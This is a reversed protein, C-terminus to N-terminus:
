ARGLGLPNIMYLVFERHTFAKLEIVIEAEVIKVDPVDFFVSEMLPHEFSVTITRDDGPSVEASTTSGRVGQLHGIHGLGTVAIEAATGAREGNDVYCSIDFSGDRTNPPSAQIRVLRVDPAIDKLFRARQVAYALVAALAIIIGTSITFALDLWAFLDREPVPM